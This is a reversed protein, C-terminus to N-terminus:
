TVRSQRQREREARRAERRERKERETVIHYRYLKEKYFLYQLEGEQNVSQMGPKGDDNGYVCEQAKCKECEKPYLNVVPKEQLRKLNTPTMCGIWMVSKKGIEVNCHSLLYYALAAIDDKMRQGTWEQKQSVNRVQKVVWGTLKNFNPSDCIYGFGIIHFHPSWYVYDQWTGLRLLDERVAQWFKKEYEEEGMGRARRIVITLRARIDPLIRWPHFVMMGGKIGVWKAWFKGIAHIQDTGMFPTVDGPAASLTIHRLHRANEKHGVSWFRELESDYYTFCDEGPSDTFTTFDDPRATRIYGRLRESIRKSQKSGWDHWCEPCEVRGCSEKMPTAGHSKDKSCAAWGKVTGCQDDTTTGTGSIARVPVSHAYLALFDRYSPPSPDDLISHPHPTVPQYAPNVISPPSSLGRGAGVDVGAESQEGWEQPQAVPYVHPPQNM